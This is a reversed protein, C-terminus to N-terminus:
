KPGAERKADLREWRLHQCIVRCPGLGPGLACGEACMPESREFVRTDSM